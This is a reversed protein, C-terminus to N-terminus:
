ESQTTNINWAQFFVRLSAGAMLPIQPQLFSSGVVRPPVVRNPDFGPGHSFFGRTQAPFSTKKPTQYDVPFPIFELGTRRFIQMARPMHWATTVLIASSVKEREAGKQFLRAEDATNGVPGLVRVALGHAVGRRELEVMLRRSGQEEEDHMVWLREARGAKWLQAGAEFRESAEGFNMVKDAGRDEACFGSLVVIADARPCDRLSLEPYSNELSHLLLRSVPFISSVYLLAGAVGVWLWRRSRWGVLLLM